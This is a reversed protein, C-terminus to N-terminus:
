FRSDLNEFLVRYRFGDPAYESMNSQELINEGGLLLNEGALHKMADALSNFHDWTMYTSHDMGQPYFKSAIGWGQMGTADMNAEFFLKWLSINEELFGAGNVPKAFNLITHTFGNDPISSEMKFYQVALLMSESQILAPDFGLVDTAAWAAGSTLQDISEYVNVFLHTPESEDHMVSAVDVRRLFYWGGMNGDTIAKEAVQSWYQLENQEFTEMDEAKVHHSQMYIIQASASTSLLLAILTILIHKM